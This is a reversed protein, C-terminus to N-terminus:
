EAHAGGGGSYLVNAAAASALMADDADNPSWADLASWGANTSRAAKCAQVSGRRGARGPPGGGGAGPTAAFFSTSKVVAAASTDEGGSARRMARTYSSEGNGVGGAGNQRMATAVVSQRGNIPAVSKRSQAAENRSKRLAVLTELDAGRLEDKDKKGRALASALRLRAIAELYERISPYSRSLQRYSERSMWLAECFSVVLVSAMHRESQTLLAMEGFFAGEKLRAVQAVGFPVRVACFACRVTLPGCLSLLAGTCRRTTHPVTHYTHPAAHWRWTSGRRARSSRSRAAQSLTCTRATSARAFSTTTRSSSRGSSPSLADARTSSRLTTHCPPPRPRPLPPPRQMALMATVRVQRELALALAGM